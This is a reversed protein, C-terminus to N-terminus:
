AIIGNGMWNLGVCLSLLVALRHRNGPTKLFDLYSSQNALRQAELAARIQSVEWLVLADSLDGNAHYKALIQLARQEKGHWM